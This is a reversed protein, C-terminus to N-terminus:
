QAPTDATTVPLAARAPDLVPGEPILQLVAAPVPTARAADYGLKALVDAGPVAYRRGEDTVLYYSQVADIRGDGPLVGAVIAQGPALRVLDTSDGHPAPLTGGSMLRARASGRATDAYVACLPSSPDYATMDPMTAPLGDAPIRTRSRPTANATAADIKVEAVAGGGYAARSAPDSLLLAAQAQTVAALGDDLLVYWRPAGGAVAAAEFVQGV